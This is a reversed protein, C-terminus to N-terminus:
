NAEWQQASLVSELYRALAPECMADLRLREQIAEQKEIFEALRTKSRRIHSPAYLASTM